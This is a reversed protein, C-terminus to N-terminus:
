QAANLSCMVSEKLEEDIVRAFLKNEPNSLEWKTLMAFCELSAVQYNEALLKLQILCLYSMQETYDSMELLDKLVSLANGAVAYHIISFGRSDLAFLIESGGRSICRKIAGLHDYYALFQVCTARAAKWPCLLTDVRHLDRFFKPDKIGMIEEQTLGKEWDVIPYGTAM